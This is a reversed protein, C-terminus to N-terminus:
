QCVLMVLRWFGAGSIAWWNHEHMAEEAGLLIVPADTLSKGSVQISTDVCDVEAIMTVRRMMNLM